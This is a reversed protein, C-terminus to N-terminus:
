DHDEGKFMAKLDHEYLAIVLMIAVGTSMGLLQLLIEMLRSKQADSSIPHGHGSNLEPMMDVLAVYLFIGATACFIWTTWSELNGGLLLGSIMGMFALVSSLVNYFIAQKVTMGAKLLLAFDGIEHPLEHCLVAITTSFGSLYSESFAAGIALGDALNHIGDGFIVMWAVSSISDPKSTLHSHAHSHGHHKHEHERVFVTEFNSSRSISREPIHLPLNAHSPSSQQQHEHDHHNHSHHNHNHNMKPQNQVSPDSIFCQLEPNHESSSSNALPCNNGDLHSVENEKTQDEESGPHAEIDQVCYASYKHKCVREGVAAESARHGTRVVRVKKELNKVAAASRERWEGVHNVAKEFLFFVFLAMLAAFGRWVSAQHFVEHQGHTLDMGQMLAHPLLHLLADGALTGIALAVLFQLLHQYFVRQMIPIVLVGFIGCLSIVFIAGSSVLWVKFDVTHQLEEDEYHHDHGHSHGDEKSVIAVICTWSHSKARYIPEEGPPCEIADEEHIHPTHEHDSAM